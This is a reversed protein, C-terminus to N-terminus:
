QVPYPVGKKTLDTLLCTVDSYNPVFRHDYDTLGLFWRVEKEIKPKLCAVIKDIQSCVQGHGLHFSLYQAELRGFACNSANATFGEQKMSRLVARLCQMHWQWDNNYIIINDLYAAAYVAHSCLIRFWQNQLGSSSQQPESFFLLSLM